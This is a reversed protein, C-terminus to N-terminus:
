LGLAKRLMANARPQWGKGGAKLAALVDPDLRLTVLTKGSSPRGLKHVKDLAESMFKNRSKQAELVDPRALRPTGFRIAM